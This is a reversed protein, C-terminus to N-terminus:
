LPFPPSAVEQFATVVQRVSVPKLLVISLSIARQCAEPSATIFIVPIEGLADRIQEVARSGTGQLLRIDSTILSPREQLALDIADQETAAFAFSTAGAEELADQLLMSIMPEDEIILVHCM